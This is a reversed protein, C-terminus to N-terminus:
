RVDKHRRQSTEGRLTNEAAVSAPGHPQNVDAHSSGTEEAHKRSNQQCFSPENLKDPSLKQGSVRFFARSKCQLDRLTVVFM